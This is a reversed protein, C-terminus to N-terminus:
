TFLEEDESQVYLAPMDSPSVYKLDAIYIKHSQRFRFNVLELYVINRSGPGLSPTNLDRSPPHDGWTSHYPTWGPYSIM